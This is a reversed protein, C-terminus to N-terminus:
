ERLYKDYIAQYRGSDKIHRLGINFDDRVQRSRFVPRYDLPNLVTFEHMQTPKIELGERKLQLSFYRFISRDSLVVDYRGLMLMRVQIAQDNLETYRGAAKVPELWQPFRRVAGQFAVVSLGQLDDPRKLTLQRGALTILVNDYFVAPDGYHGGAATLDQGLDTMAADVEREKFALPVRAFPFYVPKLVHGKHALAAGIVELEIGSNTQPFCFPPIKEGFAMTVEAAWTAATWPLLVLLLASRLSSRLSISM